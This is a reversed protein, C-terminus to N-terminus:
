TKNGHGAAASVVVDAVRDLREGNQPSAMAVITM